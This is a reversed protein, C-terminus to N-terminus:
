FYLCFQFHLRIHKRLRPQVLVYRFVIDGDTAKLSNPGVLIVGLANLTFSPSKSNEDVVTPTIRTVNAAFFPDTADTLQQDWAM